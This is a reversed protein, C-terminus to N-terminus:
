DEKPMMYTSNVSNALIDKLIDKAIEETKYTGLFIKNNEDEIFRIHNNVVGCNVSIIAYLSCSVVEKIWKGQNEDWLDEFSSEIFLRLVNDLNVANKEDQSIIFM